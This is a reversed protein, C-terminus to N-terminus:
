EVGLLKLAQLADDLKQQLVEDKTQPPKIETEGRLISLAALVDGFIRQKLADEAENRTKLANVEAQHISKLKNIRATGEEVVAVMQARAIGDAKSKDSDLKSIQTRLEANRTQLRNIEATRNELNQRTDGLQQQLEANQTQLRQSKSFNFVACIAFLISTGSLAITTGYKKGFSTETKNTIELKNAACYNATFCM